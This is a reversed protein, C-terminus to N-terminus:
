FNNFIIKTNTINAKDKNIMEEEPIKIKNFNAATFRETNDMLSRVDPSFDGTRIQRNNIETKMKELIEPHDKQEKIILTIKIFIL